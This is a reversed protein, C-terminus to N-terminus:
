RDDRLLRARLDSWRYYPWAVPELGRIRMERENYLVKVLVEGKDNRYLVMQLNSAMCMWKWGPCDRAAHASEVRDGPGELEIFGALPWLGSDHGFRLDAATRDDAIAADARAAFDRALVRTAPVYVDGLEPSNAMGGYMEMELCRSIQACEDVTFFRYLDMGGLESRLCPCISACVFLDRVFRRADNVAAPSKFLRAIVAAADIPCQACADALKKRGDKAKGQVFDHSNIRKRILTGTNFDFDLRGPTADQLSLVFNMQSVLVRPITTAQCTVRRASKFVDPFRAAMRRALTRHEQAGRESLEGIMDHHVDDLRRIDALLAAGQETLLGGKGARELRRLTDAVYSGTLRRSGHRGYHSVYFPRYGKPPPTDALVAFEYSHYVSATREVPACPLEADAFSIGFNVANARTKGHAHRNLMWPGGSKRDWVVLSTSGGGDMNVADTVGERRLIDCLDALDAGDSYGPQRGDVALIVLKRGGDALGLAMRPHLGPRIAAAGTTVGNTLILDYAATAFAVDGAACVAKAPAIEARGDRHIALVWEDGDLRSVEEGDAVCWGLPDARSEGKPAPFPEWPTTNFAVEVNAGERRRRTMFDATAELRTEALCTRDKVKEMREGWGKVRETATLGMGPTTLDVTVVYAKMLRPADLAYARATVGERLAVPREWMDDRWDGADAVAFVLVGLLASGCKTWTKM